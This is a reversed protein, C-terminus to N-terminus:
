LSADIDKIIKVSAIADEHNIGNHFVLRVKNELVPRILLGKEKALNCYEEGTLGTNRIDLMVINSQVNDEIVTKKLDQLNEAVYKANEMDLKLLPINHKLAYIGPAAIIGAQRMNGGLLKRKKRVEKIFDKNSCVLSGIPAGLGKSICFMVSDVYKCIDKAEVGLSTAANFLRAGDMHVHVNFEKALDYIKKLDDIGICTGGSFNHTNEICILKIDNKSLLERLDDIDPVKKDNLKYFVPILQGFDKDFVIKESKYIHQIEEVLVKDGPNCHALIATTNGLTGSSFLVGEDMGTLQAALDELENVALDEGRGESNVRGDDGLKASLITELMEKTPLTLTDSRLDIM